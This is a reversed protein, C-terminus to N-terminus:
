LSKRFQNLLFEVIEKMSECNVLAIKMWRIYAIRDNILLSTNAQSMYYGFRHLEPIVEIDDDNLLETNYINNVYDGLFSIFRNYLIFKEEDNM